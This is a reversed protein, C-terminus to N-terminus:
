ANPEVLDYMRLRVGEVIRIRRQWTWITGDEHVYDAPQAPHDVIPDYALRIQHGRLVIRSDPTPPQGPIGTM